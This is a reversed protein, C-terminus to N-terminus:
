RAYTCLGGLPIAALAFETGHRDFRSWIPKGFGVSFRLIRVGSFRAVVFHGLEHITVLVGLTVLFALPYILM